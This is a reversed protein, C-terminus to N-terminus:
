NRITVVLLHGLYCSISTKRILKDLIKLQGGYKEALISPIYPAINMCGYVRIDRGKFISNIEKKLEKSNYRYYYINGGQLGEKKRSIFKRLNYNYTSIVIVSNPKSVRELEQLFSHRGQPSPIHELVQSSICKDFIRDKLPVQCVDAQITSLQDSDCNDLCVKLSKVSFDVAVFKCNKRQILSTIRGTGCGLDLVLENDTIGMEEKYLDNEILSQNRPPGSYIEAFNDRSKIETRKNYTDKVDKM